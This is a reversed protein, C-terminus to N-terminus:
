HMTMGMAEHMEAEKEPLLGYKSKVKNRKLKVFAV